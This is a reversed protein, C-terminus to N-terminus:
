NQNIKVKIKSYSKIQIYDSGRVKIFKNNTGDVLVRIGAYLPSKLFTRMEDETLDFTVDSDLANQVYGNADLTAADARIPGVHLIPSDYLTSDNQAFVFEVSAGLPLHNRIEAFFTGSSLNDIIDEKVDDDIDLEIADADISQSPLKLAFPASIKVKGNVFDNKSVTGVWNEDSLKVKGVVRILSPLISIFEKIDSNQQDLVIVSTKPVGPQIAPQIIDDVMLHSLAGAENQGEIEFNINAPFNIGNNIILEMRATEFFVSDLDAPLDFEIQKQTIDIEEEGMKGTVQSFRVESLNFNAHLLDSSKVLVKESGTDITKITWSFQVTQKGFDAVQPQLSYDNLNIAITPNSNKAIFFSDVLATGTPSIFDPMEYILWADLPLDGEISMEITGNEIVAEMIVLSDTITVVEQSSVRQAPI